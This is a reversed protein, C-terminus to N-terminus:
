AEEAVTYDGELIAGLGSSAAPLASAGSQKQLRDLLAQWPKVEVEVNIGPTLGIRDLISNCATIRDRAPVKNDMAMHILAGTIADAAALLRMKAAMMVKETSGGHATCVAAGRIPWKDCPRLIPEMDPGLVYNGEADRVRAKGRCRGGEPPIQWPSGEAYPDGTFRMRAGYPIDNGDDEIPELMGAEEVIQLWQQDRKVNGSGRQESVAM